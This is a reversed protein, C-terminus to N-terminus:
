GKDGLRAFLATLRTEGEVVPPAAPAAAAPAPAYRRLLGAKPEVAPKAAPFLAVPAAPPIAPTPAEIKAAAVPTPELVPEAAAPAEVVLEKVGEAAPVSFGQFVRQRISAIVKRAGYQREPEPEPAIEIPEFDEATQTIITPLPALVDPQSEDMAEVDGLNDFVQYPLDVQNIKLFLGRVDNVM